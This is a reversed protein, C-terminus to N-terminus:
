KEFLSYEKIANQAAAEKILQYGEKKNRTVSPSGDDEELMYLGLYFKAITHDQDAAQKFLECATTLNQPVGEGNKYMLGLNNQADTHGQKAGQEFWKFATTSDQDGGLGKKM